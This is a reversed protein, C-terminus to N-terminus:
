SKEKKADAYFKREELYIETPTYGGGSFFSYQMLIQM